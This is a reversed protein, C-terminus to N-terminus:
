QYKLDSLAFYNESISKKVVSTHSYITLVEPEQGNQLVRLNFCYTCAALFYESTVFSLGKLTLNLFWVNSLVHKILLGWVIKCSLPRVFINFSASAHPSFTICFTGCTDSVGHLPTTTTCDTDGKSTQATWQRSKSTASFHETIIQYLDLYKTCTFQICTKTWHTIPINTKLTHFALFIM